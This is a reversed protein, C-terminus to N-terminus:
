PAAEKVLFVGAEYSKKGPRTTSVRWTDLAVDTNDVAFRVGMEDLSVVQPATLRIHGGYLADRACCVYFPAQAGQALM